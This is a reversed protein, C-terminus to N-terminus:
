RRQETHTEKIFCSAFSGVVDTAARVERNFKPM